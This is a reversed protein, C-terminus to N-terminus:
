WTGGGTFPMYISKILNKHIPRCAHDDTHAPGCMLNWNSCEQYLNAEPCYERIENLLRQMQVAIERFRKVHVSKIKNM